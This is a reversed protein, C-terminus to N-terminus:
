KFSTDTQTHLATIHKCKWIVDPLVYRWRHFGHLFLACLQRGLNHFEPNEHSICSKYIKHSKQNGTSVCVTASQCNWPWSLYKKSLNKKFSMGWFLNKKWGSELRNHYRRVRCSCLSRSKSNQKATVADAEYKKLMFHTVRTCGALYRTKTSAMPNHKTDAREASIRVNIVGPTTMKMLFYFIWRLPFKHGRCTVCALRFKKFYLFWNKINTPIINVHPTIKLHAKAISAKWCVELCGLLVQTKCLTTPSTNLCTQLQQEASPSCISKIAIAVTAAIIIRILM